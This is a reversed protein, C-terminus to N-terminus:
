LESKDKKGKGKGKPDSNKLKGKKSVKALARFGLMQNINDATLRNADRLRNGRRIFEKLLSFLVDENVMVVLRHERAHRALKRLLRNAMIRVSFDFQDMMIGDADRQIEAIREM